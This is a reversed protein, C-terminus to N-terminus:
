PEAREGLEDLVRDDHRETLHRVHLARCGCTMHALEDASFETAFADDDHLSSQVAIFAVGGLFHRKGDPDHM